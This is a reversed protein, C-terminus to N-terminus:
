RGAGASIRWVGAAVPTVTLGAQHLADAQHRTATYVGPPGPRSLTAADATLRTHRGAFYGVVESTSLQNSVVMDRRHALDEGIVYYWLYESDQYNDTVFVAHTGAAAVAREIRARDRTDGRQSSRPYDVIGTVLPVAVLAATVAAAVLRSDPRRAQLWGVAGDLGVALFVALVLFLPLFFVVVDAIDYNMAYFASAVGLLVLYVTVARRGPEAWRLARVLGYAIPALLVLYEERVFRLALPLRDRLLQGLGFVFMRDKFPGGTVYTGIDGLNKIPYEVYGGVRYMYLLYLYQSAGLVVAGATFAVNRATLARRRDSLVIWAVAPLALVTSLHHGLSLAYLGLGALLWANAGGLRWRALCTVVSVTLLIHLTYVEAVVAQSWFTTTVAFTLATAAAVPRRVDLVRLLRYLVCIAAAGFVASLLNARWATTGLPVLHHFVQDVFVYLPYGTAHPVGGVRGLMQFKATDGSYGIGPLLSRVYVVLTVAGLAATIWRDAIPGGGPTPVPAVEDGSEPGDESAARSGSGSEAGADGRDDASPLPRGAADVRTPLTAHPPAAMFDIMKFPWRACMLFGM